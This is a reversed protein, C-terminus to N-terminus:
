ILNVIPHDCDTLVPHDRNLDHLSWPTHGIHEV